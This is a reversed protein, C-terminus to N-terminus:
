NDDEDALLSPAEGCGGGGATLITLRDGPQCQIEADSALKERKRKARLLYIESSEGDLGGGFGKPRKAAHSLYFRATCAADFLYEKVLGPQGASRGAGGSNTRESWTTLSVPWSSELTEVSLHSGPRLARGRLESGGRGGALIETLQREGFNLNVLVPGGDEGAAMQPVAQALSRRLFQHLHPLGIEAGLFSPGRRESSLWSESPTKVQLRSFGAPSALLRYFVEEAQGLRAACAEALSALAMGLLSASSVQWDSSGESGSFDFVIQKDSIELRLKVTNDFDLRAASSWEGIPLEALFDLNGRAPSPPPKRRLVALWSALSQRASLISAMLQTPCRPQAAIAALVPDHLQDLEGLPTPPLYIMNESFSGEGFTVPLNVRLALLHSPKMASSRPSKAQAGFSAAVVLNLAGLHAGSILASNTLAVEGEKLQLYQHILEACRPLSVWDEPSHPSVYILNASKAETLALVAVRASGFLRLWFDVQPRGLGSPLALPSM